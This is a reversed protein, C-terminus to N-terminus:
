WRAFVHMPFASITTAEKLIRWIQCWRLYVLKIPNLSSLKEEATVFLSRDM